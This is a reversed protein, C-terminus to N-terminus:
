SYYEKYYKTTLAKLIHVKNSVLNLQFKIIYSCTEWHLITEKYCITVIYMNDYKHYNQYSLLNM